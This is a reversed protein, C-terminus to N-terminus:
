RPFSRIATAAALLQEQGRPLVESDGLSNGASGFFFKEKQVASLAACDAYDHYVFYATGYM